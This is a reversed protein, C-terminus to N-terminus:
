EAAKKLTTMFGGLEVPPKELAARKENVRETLSIELSVYKYGVWTGVMMFLPYDWPETQKNKFPPSPFPLPSTRLSFSQPNTTCIAEFRFPPRAHMYDRQHFERSQALRGNRGLGKELRGPDRMSREKGEELLQGHLQRLAMRAGPPAGFYHERRAQKRWGQSREGRGGIRVGRGWAVVFL